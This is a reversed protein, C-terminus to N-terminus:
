IRDTGDQLTLFNVVNRSLRDTGDELALFKVVNRPLWDTGDEITLFDPIRSGQLYSRYTTGFRRYLIVVRSLTIDWFLASRLTVKQEKDL